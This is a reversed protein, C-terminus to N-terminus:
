EILELNDELEWIIQNIWSVKFRWLSYWWKHVEYLIEGEMGEYFWSTVRVRDWYKM